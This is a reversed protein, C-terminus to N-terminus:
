AYIRQYIIRSQKIHFWNTDMQGFYITMSNKVDNKIGKIRQALGNRCCDLLFISHPPMSQNSRIHDERMEVFEHSVSEFPICFRTVDREFDATNAYHREGLNADCPVLYTTGNDLEM